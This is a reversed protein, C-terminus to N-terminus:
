ASKAVKKVKAPKDARAQRPKRVKVPKAEPAVEELELERMVEEKARQLASAREAQLEAETKQTVPEQQIGTSQVASTQAVVPRSVIRFEGISLLKDVDDKHVNHFKGLPNNGARYTRNNKGHYTVSGQRTGIYEMRVYGDPAPVTQQEVVVANDEEPAGGPSMLARKAAMITQGAAKGGCCGPMEKGGSFEAYRKRFEALLSEKHKLSTERRTGTHQRYALLPAMVAAGCYGKAALKVFFDWDEWGVINEDFGGVAKCWELPILASVAHQGSYLWEVQSYEPPEDIVSKDGNIAIWGSYIYRGDSDIHAQLMRQLADPQLWDDADLFLVLPARARELAMNRARGAGMGAQETRYLRVFPYPALVSEISPEEDPNSDDIVIAEWNRCTQALLSNIADPLLAKHKPGVPIIVSVAPESYSRVLQPSKSPAAMPYQKDEMWPHAPAISRYAKTRSASESHGRYWFLPEETVRKATFGTSLGRTWFEADEGPAWVQQYGGVREWMDRRFMAACPICTSPPNHPLAQSEWHFEPPFGTTQQGREHFLMLGAYAVGLARDRHLVPLLTKIYRPDLRDDADLCVIHEQTAARIGNNRAAAVGQNEQYIAKIKGAQEYEKIVIRSDDTSGDDVVIIEDPQVRQALCSGIAEGVFTGYNFCTIVVSVGPKRNRKEEAVRRYLEAYKAAAAEWSYNRAARMAATSYALRNARIQELGILLGEIDGPEVLWGTIGHEVIDLTGGHAYGLIPVGSAMAELTGIGFTEKTTALYVDAAQVWEKMASFSQAGIVRLTDLQRAGEPAFTSVVEVGHEALQWAPLPSCADGPRNKNWLVYGQNHRPLWDDAEIGHGIVTPNIRMDRKFPMAVWESPVTIARAERAAAIIQRNANHHWQAYNGSDVDGTWYLGHCSLVDISKLNGKTIHGVVVEAQEEKEVLEIGQAPLYKFLAHVVQGVGNNDAIQSVHPSMFVKTM